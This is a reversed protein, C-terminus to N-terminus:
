NNANKSTKKEVKKAPHSVNDGLKAIVEKLTLTGVENTPEGKGLTVEGNKITAPFKAGGSICFPLNNVIVFRM